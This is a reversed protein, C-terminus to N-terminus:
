LEYNQKFENENFMKYSLLMNILQNFDFVIDKEKENKKFSDEKMIKCFIIEDKLEEIRKNIIQEESMITESNTNFFGNNNLKEIKLKIDMNVCSLESKIEIYKKNKNKKSKILKHLPYASLCSLLLILTFQFVNFDVKFIIGMSIALAFFFPICFIPLVHEGEEWIMFNQEFIKKLKKKKEILDKLENLLSINTKNIKNIINNNVIISKSNSIDEKLELMKFEKYNM